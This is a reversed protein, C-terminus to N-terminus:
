DIYKYIQQSDNSNSNSNSNYPNQLTIQCIHEKDLLTKICTEIQEDTIKFPIKYGLETLLVDKTFTKNKKIYYFFHFCVIIM